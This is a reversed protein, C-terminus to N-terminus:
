KLRENDQFEMTKHFKMYSFKMSLETNSGAHRLNVKQKSCGLVYSYLVYDVQAVSSKKETNVYGRRFM